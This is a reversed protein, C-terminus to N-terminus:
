SYFSYFRFESYIMPLKLFQDFGVREKRLDSSHRGECESYQAEVDETNRWDNKRMKWIIEGCLTKVHLVATEQRPTHHFPIEHTQRALNRKLAHTDIGVSSLM